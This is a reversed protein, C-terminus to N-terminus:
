SNSESLQYEEAVLILMVLQCMSYTFYGLSFLRKCEVMNWSILETGMCRIVKGVRGQWGYSSIGLGLVVPQPSPFFLFVQSQKRVGVNKKISVPFVESQAHKSSCGGSQPTVHHEALICRRYIGSRFWLFMTGALLLLLLYCGQGSHEPQQLLFTRKDRVDLRSRFILSKPFLEWRTISLQCPLHSPASLAETLLAAQYLWTCLKDSTNILFFLFLLAIHPSM